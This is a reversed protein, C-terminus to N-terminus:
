QRNRDYQLFYYNYPNEQDKVGQRKSTLTWENDSFEPFFVDGEFIEDILTIYMRDAIPLIQEFINGGGIVFLEDNPNNEALEQIQSIDHMVEVEKPFTIHKNKTLIIHKRQPLIRGISNFTKRGMIITHNVTKEKFFKLDKPLHWPMDNKLGIVQNRGMAVLLSIM